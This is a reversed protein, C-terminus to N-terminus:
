TAPPRAAPLPSNRRSSTPSTSTSSAPTKETVTTTAKIEGIANEVTCKGKDFNLTHNVTVYIDATRVNNKFQVTFKDGVKSVAVKDSDYWYSNDVNADDFQLFQQTGADVSIKYLLRATTTGKTVELTNTGNNAVPYLITTENEIEFIHIDNQMPSSLTLLDTVVTKSVVTANEPKTYKNTFTIPTELINGEVPRATYQASNIYLEHNTNEKVDVKLTYRTQDYIVGSIPNDSDESIVYEYVGVGTFVLTGFGSFDATKEGAKVTARAVRRAFGIGGTLSAKFPLDVTPTDSDSSLAKVIKATGQVPDTPPDLPLEAATFTNTITFSDHTTALLDAVQEPQDTTGPKTVKASTVSLAGNSETVEITLTYITEDYKMGAVPAAPKVEQM